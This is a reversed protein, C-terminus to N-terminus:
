DNPEVKTSSVIVDVEDGQKLRLKKGMEDALLNVSRPKGCAPDTLSIEALEERWGDIIKSVSLCSLSCRQFCVELL